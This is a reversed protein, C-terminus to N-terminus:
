CLCSYKNRWELKSLSGIVFAGTKGRGSQAQGIVNHGMFIPVITKKQIESPQEFGYNTIGQLLDLNAHRGQFQPMNEFDDYTIIYIQIIISIIAQQAETFVNVRSKRESEYVCLECCRNMRLLSMGLGVLVSRDNDGTWTQKM